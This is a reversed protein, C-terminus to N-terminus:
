GELDALVFTQPYAGGTFGIGALRRVTSHAGDCGIVYRASVREDFGDQRRLTAAATDAGCV